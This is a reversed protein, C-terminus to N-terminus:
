YHLFSECVYHFSINALHCRITIQSESSILSSEHLVGTILCHFLLKLDESTKLTLDSIEVSKGLRSSIINNRNTDRETLQSTPPESDWQSRRWGAPGQLIRVVRLLSSVETSALLNESQVAM